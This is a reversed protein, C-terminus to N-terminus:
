PANGSESAKKAMHEKLKAELGNIIAIWAHAGEWTNFERTNKANAKCDARWKAEKTKRVSWNSM